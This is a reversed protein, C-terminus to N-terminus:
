NTVADPFNLRAFEGYHKRAAIDYAKAAELESAFLGLHIQKDNPYICARWRNKTYKSVGKYQSASNRASRRNQMNQQRTAIRLNSRQNDLRDGNIHDADVKSDRLGLIIRHMSEYQVKGTQDRYCRVAYGGMSKRWKRDAFLPYDEDDIIAYGGNTLSILKTMM